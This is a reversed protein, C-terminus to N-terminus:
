GRNLNWSTQCLPSARQSYYEKALVSPVESPLQARLRTLPALFIRNKVTTGAIDLPKFLNEFHM